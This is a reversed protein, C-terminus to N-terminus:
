FHQHGPNRPSFYTHVLCYAFETRSLVCIRGVIAHRKDLHWLMPITVPNRIQQENVHINRWTLLNGLNTSAVWWYTFLVVFVVQSNYVPQLKWVSLKRGAWYTERTQGVECINQDYKEPKIISVKSRWYLLAIFKRPQPDITKAEQRSRKLYHFRRQPPM